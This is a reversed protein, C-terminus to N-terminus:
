VTDVIVVVSTAAGKANTRMFTSKAETQAIQMGDTSQTFAAGTDSSVDNYIIQENLGEKVTVIARGTALEQFAETLTVESRAM